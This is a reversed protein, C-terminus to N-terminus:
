KELRIAGVACDQISQKVREISEEPVESFATDIDHKEYNRHYIDPYLDVCLGCRICYDAIKIKM